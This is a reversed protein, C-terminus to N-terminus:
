GRSVKLENTVERVGETDRAIRVALQREAESTVQGTLTVNGQRTDVNINHAAVGKGTALHMKVSATITADKVAQGFSRSPGTTAARHEPPPAGKDGEKRVELRDHVDRVGDASKAISVALDRHVDSPVAGSLTVVGHDTHVDIDSASLHPNFMYTTEIRMTTSADTLKADDDARNVPAERQAARHDAPRDACGLAVAALFAAPGLMRMIRPTM